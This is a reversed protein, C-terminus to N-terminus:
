QWQAQRQPVISAHHFVGYALYAAGEVPGALRDSKTHSVKVPLGKDDAVQGEIGEILKKCRGHIRLRREHMLRHMMNCRDRISPNQANDNVYAPARVVFGRRRLVDADAGEGLRNVRADPYCVSKDAIISLKDLWDRPREKEGAARKDLYYAWQEITAPRVIEDLILLMWKNPDNTAHGQPVVIYGLVLSQPFDNCDWGGLMDLRAGPEFLRRAAIPTVNTYGFEEPTTGIGEIMHDPPYWHRWLINGEAVWQGLIERKVKPDDLGGSATIAAQVKAESVWPNRLCSLTTTVRQIDTMSPELASYPIGETALKQLWHGAVPTTTTMLQGGSEMTRNILITWNIEHPVEAGEDLVIFIASAGKLNAGKRGAYKLHIESGDILIIKQPKSQETKPYYRVLEKPFFPVCWRDTRQGTVLKEVGIRTMERTPAVWWFQAKHGGFEGWRDGLAEKGVESKGARNGGFVGIVKHKRDLVPAIQEDYCRFPMLIKEAKAALADFAAANHPKRLRRTGKIRDILIDLHQRTEVRVSDKSQCGCTCQTKGDGREHRYIPRHVWLIRPKQATVARALGEIDKWQAWLAM